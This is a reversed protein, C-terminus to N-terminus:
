RVQNGPRYERETHANVQERYFYVERLDGKAYREAQDGFHPSAPSGSQGGATVALARVRDGFEVVAVFSNGSTGYMRKTGPYTRAGYSALSGWRGSTFAVPISPKADDFTQVIDATNRQYRNIDGWPTKWTGFDASLTELAAALAQVLQEPRAKRAVFDDTSLRAERAAEAVRRGIEDGWYIAVATPVSDVSWRYDWKRLLAIAEATQKRLPNSAPLGDWAGILTPVLTAFAPLYSDYAASLLSELTFDKRNELVRIAHLGRANEGNREVYAPFDAAKPSHPGAASWPWNNTNYLWGNPPNLLNPSEDIAHVGKWATAPNSGDVPRTWDFSPDREPIFNSHFYAITGDGDAYITNNSSNTHLEMSEHFAKYNRAKTRTYSQTLAKVPEQM